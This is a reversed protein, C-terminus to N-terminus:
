SPKVDPKADFRQGKKRDTFKLVGNANAVVQTMEGAGKEFLVSADIKSINKLVDIPLALSVVLKDGVIQSSLAVAVSQFAERRPVPVARVRPQRVKEAYPQFIKYKALLNGEDKYLAGLRLRGQNRLVIIDQPSVGDAQAVDAVSMRSDKGRLDLRVFVSLQRETLMEAAKIFVSRLVGKEPVLPLEAAFINQNEPLVNHRHAKSVIRTRRVGARPARTKSTNEVYAAPHFTLKELTKMRRGQIQKKLSSFAHEAATIVQQPTTGIKEAVQQATMAHPAKRFYMLCLLKFEGPNLTQAALKFAAWKIGRDPIYAINEAYVESLGDKVPVARNRFVQASTQAASGAKAANNSKPASVMPAVNAAPTINVRREGAQAAEKITIGFTNKFENADMKHVGLAKLQLKSADFGPSLAARLYMSKVENIRMGTICVTEGALLDLAEVVLDYESHSLDLNDPKGNTFEHHDFRKDRKKGLMDRLTSAIDRMDNSGMRAAASDARKKWIQRAGEAKGGAINLADICDQLSALPRMGNKAAMGLPVIVKSSLNTLQRLEISKLRYGAAEQEKIGLVVCVGRRPYFQYSGIEVTQSASTDSAAAASSPKQDPINLM